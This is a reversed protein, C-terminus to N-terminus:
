SDKEPVCTEFTRDSYFIMIREIKREPKGSPMVPKTHPNQPSVLASIVEPSQSKKPLIKATSPVPSPPSDFLDPEGDPPPAPSHVGRRMEGVGLLLWDPSIDPYRQLIKKIVNKSAENVNSTIHSIIAKQVGIEDAFKTPSLKKAEMIQIIREREEM